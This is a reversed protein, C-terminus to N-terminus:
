LEGVDKAVERFIGPPMPKIQRALQQLRAANKRGHRTPYQRLWRKRADTAVESREGFSM